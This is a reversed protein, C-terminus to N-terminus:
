GGSLSEVYDVPDTGHPCEHWDGLVYESNALWMAEDMTDRQTSGV